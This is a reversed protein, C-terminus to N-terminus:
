GGAQNSGQGRGAMRCGLQSEVAQHGPERVNPTEHECYFHVRVARASEFDGAMVAKNLKVEDEVTSVSSSKEVAANRCTGQTDDQRRRHVEPHRGSTKNLAYVRERRGRDDRDRAGMRQHAHGPLSRDRRYKGGRGGKRRSRKAHEHVTVISTITKGCNHHVVGAMVYNHYVDVTFDYYM